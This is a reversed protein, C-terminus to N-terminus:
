KSHIVDGLKLQITGNTVTDHASLTLGTVLPLTAVDQLGLDFNFDIEQLSLPFRNLSWEFKRTQENYKFAGAKLEYHSQWQATTPIGGSVVLQDIEHLSNQLTFTVHAGTGEKIEVSPTLSLDSNLQNKIHDTETEITNQLDNSMSSTVYADLAQFSEAPQEPNSMQQRATSADLLKATVVFDGHSQPSIQLLKDYEKETWIVTDNEVVGQPDSQIKKWDVPGSLHFVIKGSQFPTDSENEFHIAYSVSDGYSSSVPISGGTRSLTVRLKGMFVQTAFSSDQVPAHDGDQQQLIVKMDQIGHADSKFTGRFILTGEKTFLNVQKKLLDPSWGIQTLDAQPETSSLTFSSPLVLQLSLNQLSSASPDSYVIHYEAEKGPEIKPPGSVTFHDLPAALTFTFQTNATFSSSVSDQKYYVTARINKEQFPTGQARVKISVHIKEGPKLDQLTWTTSQKNSSQPQSEVIKIDSPYELVLNIHSLFVKDDNSLQIDYTGESGLPIHDQGSISVHLTDGSQEGTQYMFHYGLFSLGAAIGLIFFLILFVIFGNPSKKQTLRTMDIDDGQSFFSNIDDPSQKSTENTQM